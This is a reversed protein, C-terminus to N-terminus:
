IKGTPRKGKLWPTKGWNAFAVQKGNLGDLVKAGFESSLKLMEKDLINLSKGIFDNGEIVHESNKKFTLFPSDANAFYTTPVIHTEKTRYSGGDNVLEWYPAKTNLTDIKGIGVIYEKGPDNKIIENELANELNATPRAPHKRENNIVTRMSTLTNEAAAAVAIEAGTLTIKELYRILNQFKAKDRFEITAKIM